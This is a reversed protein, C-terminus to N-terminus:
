GGIIFGSETRWPGRISARDQQRSYIRGFSQKAARGMRQIHERRMAEIKGKVVDGLASARDDNKALFLQQLAYDALVSRYKLPLWPEETAGGTLVDTMRIYDFDIRCWTTTTGSGVYHSFRLKQESILAAMNPIGFTIQTLPFFRELEFKSVVEVVERGSQYARMPSVIYLLDDPTDYELNFANFNTNAATVGNYPSDLVADQAGASHQLIRYCDLSSSQLLSGTFKIYWGQLSIANGLPDKPIVTFHIASNTQFVNVLGDSAGQGLNPQLTIVGPMPSWLWWWPVHTNPSHELSGTAIAMYGKNIYDLVASEYDSTGDTPEHARFLVDDILDPTYQYNPM